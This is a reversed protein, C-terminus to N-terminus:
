GCRRWMLCHRRMAQSTTADGLMAVTAEDGATTATAALTMMMKTARTTTTPTTSENDLQGINSGGDNRLIDYRSISQPREAPNEDAMADVPGVMFEFGNYEQLIARTTFISLVRRAEAEEEEVAIKYPAKRGLVCFWESL